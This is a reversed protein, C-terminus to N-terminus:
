VEVHHPPLRGIRPVAPTALTQALLFGSPSLGQTSLGYVCLRMTNMSLIRVLLRAGHISLLPKAPLRPEWRSACRRSQCETAPRSRSLRAGISALPCPTAHMTLPTHRTCHKSSCYTHLWTQIYKPLFPGFGHGGLFLDVSEEFDNLFSALLKEQTLPSAQPHAQALLDNLCTTPASNSVNIGIGVGVSRM